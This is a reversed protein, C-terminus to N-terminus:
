MLAINWVCKHRFNQNMTWCMAFNIANWVFTAWVVAHKESLNLQTVGENLAVEVATNPDQFCSDLVEIHMVQNGPKQQIKSPTM